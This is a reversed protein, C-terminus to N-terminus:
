NGLGLPLNEELGLLALVFIIILVEKQMNNTLPCCPLKILIPKLSQLGVAFREKVVSKWVLYSYYFFYHSAGGKSM